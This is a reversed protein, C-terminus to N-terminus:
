DDEEQHSRLAAEVRAVLVRPSFPKTIYDNAGESLGAVEDSEDGLATLLIIPVSRTEANRRLARCVALGDVGPLMRDLLILDFSQLQVVALADEGSEVTRVRLGQRSLNYDVLERIDREDEVVLVSPVL